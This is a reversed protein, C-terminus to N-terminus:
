RFVHYKLNGVHRPKLGSSAADRLKEGRVLVVATNTLRRDDDTM